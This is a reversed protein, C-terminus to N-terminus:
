FCNSIYEIWQVNLYLFIKYCMFNVLFGMSIFKSLKVEIVIFTYALLMNEIYNKTSGYYNSM